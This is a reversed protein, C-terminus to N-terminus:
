IYGINVLTVKDSTDKIHTSKGKKLVTCISDLICKVLVKLFSNVVPKLFIFKKFNMHYNYKATKIALFPCFIFGTCNQVPKM